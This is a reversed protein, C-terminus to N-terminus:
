SSARWSRGRLSAVSGSFQVLLRHMRAWPFTTRVNNYHGAYVKLVRRLHAEGFFVIHDLREQRISGILREAHRKAMTLAASDTIGSIWRRWGDDSLSVTALMATGPSIALRRM